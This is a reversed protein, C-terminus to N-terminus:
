FLFVVVKKFITSKEVFIFLEDPFLLTKDSLITRSSKIGYYFFM